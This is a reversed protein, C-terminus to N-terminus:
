LTTMKSFHGSMKSNALEDNTLEYAMILCKLLCTAEEQFEGSVENHFLLVLTKYNKRLEDLTTPKTEFGLIQYPKLKGLISDKVAQYEESAEIFPKCDKLTNISCNLVQSWTSDIEESKCKQKSFFLKTFGIPFPFNQLKHWIRIDICKRLLDSMKKMNMNLKKFDNIWQSYDVGTKVQVEQIHAIIKDANLPFHSELQSDIPLIYQMENIMFLMDLAQARILIGLHGSHDAAEKDFTNNYPLVSGDQTTIGFDNRLSIAKYLPAQNEPYAIFPVIKKPFIGAMMSLLQMSPFLIKNGFTDLISLVSGDNFANVSALRPIALLGFYFTGFVFDTFFCKAHDRAKEWKYKAENESAILWTISEKVTFFGHYVMGLPSVIIGIAIFSISRAVGRLPKGYYHWNSTIDECDFLENHIGISEGIYNEAKIPRLQVNSPYFLDSSLVKCIGIESFAKISSM